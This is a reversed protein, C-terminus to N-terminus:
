CLSMFCRSQVSEDQPWVAATGILLHKQTQDDDAQWVEIFFEEQEARFIQIWCSRDPQKSAM